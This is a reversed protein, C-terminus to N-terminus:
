KVDLVFTVDVTDVVEMNAYRVLADVNCYPKHFSATRDLDDWWGTSILVEFPEEASIPTLEKEYIADIEAWMAPHDEQWTDVTEVGEEPTLLTIHLTVEAKEGKPFSCDFIYEVGHIHEMSEFGQPSTVNGVFMEEISSGYEVYDVWEGNVKVEDGVLYVPKDIKFGIGVALTEGDFFADKVTCVTTESSQVFDITQVKEEMMQAENSDMNRGFLYQIVYSHNYALAALSSLLIIMILILGVYLKKKM